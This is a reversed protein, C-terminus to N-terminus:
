NFRVDTYALELDFDVAQMENFLDVKDNLSMSMGTPTEPWLEKGRQDRWMVRREVDLALLDCVKRKQEIEETFPEPAKWLEEYVVADIKNQWQRLVDGVLHKWPTASDGYYCEPMDHLLCDFLVTKDDPFVQDAFWMVLRTHQAVTLPKADKYHGTFRHIMNLSTNIDSLLIDSSQLNALDIYKGSAMRKVSQM